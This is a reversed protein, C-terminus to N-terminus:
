LPAVRLVRRSRDFLVRCASVATRITLTEGAIRITTGPHLTGHVILEAKAARRRQEAMEALRAEIEELRNMAAIRTKLLQGVAPRKEKPTRELVARPTERGFFRNIKAMTAELREKEQLFEAHGPPNRGLLVQTPVGLDSGIQNAEIGEGARITGGMIVGKGSLARVWAGADVDCNSLDNDIVIDGKAHLIANEAFHALISGGAEIRGKEHMPAGGGIEVDGGAQVTAGEVSEDVLVTGAVEVVFDSRISGHIAVSGTELHVNGYKYDIDGDITLLDTVSLVNDAYVVVGDMEARFTENEDRSVHEGAHIEAPRGDEAPIEEGRIDTGPEGKQPGIVRGLIQGIHVSRIANRERYDVQHLDHIDGTRSADGGFFIQLHADRGDRPPTGRFLEVGPTQAPEAPESAAASERAVLAELASGVAGPLFGHVFGLERFAEELRDASLPERLSDRTFLTATLSMADADVEFLPDVRVEEGLIVATGYTEARAVTEEDTLYVGDGARLSLEEPPADEVPMEEGRVTLGAKGPLAPDLRCVAVGPLVPYDLNGSAVVAPPQPPELPQGRALVLGEVPEGETARRLVERLGTRLIGEKVGMSHLAQRVDRETLPQGTGVPPRYAECAAVMDDDDLTIVLEADANKARARYTGNGGPEVAIDDVPLDLESAALQRAETENDAVVSTERPPM